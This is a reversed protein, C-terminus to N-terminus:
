SSSISQNPQGVRKACPKKFRKSRHWVRSLPFDNSSSEDGSRRRVMVLPDLGTQAWSVVRALPVQQKLKAIRNSCLVLAAAGDNIGSANGATVTGASVVIADDIM